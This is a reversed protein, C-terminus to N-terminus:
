GTSLQLTRGKMEIRLAMLHWWQNDLKGLARPDPQKNLCAPADCIRPSHETLHLWRRRDCWVSMNEVQSKGGGGRQGRRSCFETDGKVRRSPFPSNWLHAWCPPGEGRMFDYIMFSYSPWRINNQDSPAVPSIRGNPPPHSNLDPNCLKPSECSGTLVKCSLISDTLM